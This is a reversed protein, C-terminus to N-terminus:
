LGSYEWAPHVLKKLPTVWRALWNAAAYLDTLGHRKLDNIQNALAAIIHLEIPTPEEIWTGNYEPLYGV